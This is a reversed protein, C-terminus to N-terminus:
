TDMADLQWYSKEGKQEVTLLALSKSPCLLDQIESTATQPRSASNSVCLPFVASLLKVLEELDCLQKRQM